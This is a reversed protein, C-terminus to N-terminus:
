LHEPTHRRLTTETKGFQHLEATSGRFFVEWLAGNGTHTVVRKCQSVLILIALFTQGKAEPNKSDLNHSGVTGGPAELEDIVVVFGPFEARFAAQAEPEDTLLLIQPDKIDGLFNRTQKIFEQLSPTEIEGSKDTGRYHVGVCDQLRISYKTVLMEQIAEVQKSPMFYADVESQILNLPLKNYDSSWWDHIRETRVEENPNEIPLKTQGIPRFFRAWNDSLVRNKYLSMGFTSRIQKLPRNSLYVDSLTTSACSMLGANHTVYYTEGLFFGHEGRQFKLRTSTYQSKSAISLIALVSNRVKELLFTKTTKRVRRQQFVAVIEWLLTQIKRV